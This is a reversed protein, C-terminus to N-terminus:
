TLVPPGGDWAGLVGLGGPERRQDRLRQGAAGRERRIQGVDEDVQRRVVDAADGGEQALRVAVQLDPDVTRTLQV